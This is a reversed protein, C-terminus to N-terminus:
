KKKINNIIKINDIEEQLRNLQIKDILCDSIYELTKNKKVLIVLEKFSLRDKKNFSLFQEEILKSVEKKEKYTLTNYIKENNYNWGNLQRTNQVTRALNVIM